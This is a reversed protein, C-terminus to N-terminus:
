LLSVGHPYIFCVPYDKVVAVWRGKNNKIEPIQSKSVGIYNSLIHDVQHSCGSKPFMVIMKCENLITRTKKYDSLLHNTIIININFHAGNCLVEEILKLINKQVDRPFQDVDDFIVMSNNYDEIDPEDDLDNADERIIKDEVKSLVDDEDLKSFLHIPWNPHTKIWTVLYNCVFTSKGAQNPGCVYITERKAHNDFIPQFDHDDSHFSRINSDDEALRFVIYKPVNKKKKGKKKRPICLCLPRAHKCKETSKIKDTKVCFLSPETM